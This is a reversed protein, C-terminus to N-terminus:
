ALESQNPNDQRVYSPSSKFPIAPFGLGVWPEGQALHRLIFLPLTLLRSAVTSKSQGEAQGEHISLLIMYIRAM